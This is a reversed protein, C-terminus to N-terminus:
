KVHSSNPRTSERDAAVRLGGRSGVDVTRRGGPERRASEKKKRERRVGAGRSGLPFCEWRGRVIGSRARARDGRRGRVRELDGERGAPRRTPFSRLAG